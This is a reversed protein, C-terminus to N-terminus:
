WEYNIMMMDDGADDLLNGAWGSVASCIQFQRAVGNEALNFSISVFRSQPAATDLRFQVSNCQPILSVIQEDYLSVLASKALGAQIDSLEVSGAGATSFKLLRIYNRGSCSEIYVLEGPDIQGDSDDDARWIALDDGTAGCILSSHRILESIQLTALRVQSQKQSSDGTVDNAVGLAHAFVAAATLIISTVMLAALLEVLTFGRFYTKHKCM